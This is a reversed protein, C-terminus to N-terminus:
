QRIWLTLFQTSLALSRFDLKAGRNDCSRTGDMQAEQLVDPSITRWLSLRAKKRRLLISNGERISLMEQQLRGVTCVWGFTLTSRWQPKLRFCEPLAAGKHQLPVAQAPPCQLQGRNTENHATRWETLKLLLHAHICPLGLEFVLVDRPQQRSFSCFSNFLMLWWWPVNRKQWTCWQGEDSGWVQLVLLM